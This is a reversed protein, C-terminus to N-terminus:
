AAEKFKSSKDLANKAYKTDVGMIHTFLWNKLFSALKISDLESSNLQSEFKLVVELLNKHVRKHSELAPYGTQEMFREEHTFHEITYNKLNTFCTRILSQKGSNLASILENIFDLLKIHEQDMAQVGIEYKDDWPILEIKQREIYGSQNLKLNLSEQVKRIEDSLVNALNSTQGVVLSNRQISENVSHISDRMEVVGKSQEVSATNIQSIQQVITNVSGRVEEFNCQFEEIIEKCNQTQTKLLQSLRQNGSEIDKLIQKVKSDTVELTSQISNASEGSMNALNGIEEAVVSFGKGHEGARAAEVSANFSLLKTQFVIDNILGTKSVVEEFQGTLEQLLQSINNLLSIVEENANNSDSLNQGLKHSSLASKDITKQIDSISQDVSSINQTNKEVMSSIENSATSTEVVASVQETNSESIQICSNEIQEGTGSLNDIRTKFYHIFSSSDNEMRLASRFILIQAIACGVIGLYFVFAKENLSVTLFFSSMATFILFYLKQKPNINM